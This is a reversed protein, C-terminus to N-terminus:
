ACMCLGDGVWRSETEWLQLGPKTAASSSETYKHFYVFKRDLCGCAVASAGSVARRRPRRLFFPRRLGAPTSMLIWAAGFNRTNWRMLAVATSAM